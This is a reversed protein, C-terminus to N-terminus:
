WGFNIDEDEKADGEINNPADEGFGNSIALMSHPRVSHIKTIPQIYKKKM